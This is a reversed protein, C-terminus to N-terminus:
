RKTRAGAKGREARGAPDGSAEAAGVRPEKISGIKHAKGAAIAMVACPTTVLGSWGAKYARCWRGNMEPPAWDFDQTFLVRPM